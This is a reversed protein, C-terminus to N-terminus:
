IQTTDSSTAIVAVAAPWGDTTPDYINLSIGQILRSGDPSLLLPGRYPGNLSVPNGILQGTAVDFAAVTTTYDKTGPHYVETVGYARTGDGNMLVRTHAQGDLPKWTGTVKGTSTDFVTVFTQSNTTTTLYGADGPKGSYELAGVASGTFSTANVLKGTVADFVALQNNTTVLLRTGDDSLQAAGAVTGSLTTSEVSADSTDIVV